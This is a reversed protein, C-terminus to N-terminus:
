DPDPTLIDTVSEFRTWFYAPNEGDPGSHLFGDQDVSHIDVDQIVGDRFTIRLRKDENARLLSEVEDRTMLKEAEESYARCRFLGM